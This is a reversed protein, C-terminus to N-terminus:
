RHATDQQLSSGPLTFDRLKIAEKPRKYFLPYDKELHEEIGLFYLAPVSFGTMNKM